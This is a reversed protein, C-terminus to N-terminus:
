EEGDELPIGFFEREYNEMDMTNRFYEMAEEENDERLGDIASSAIDILRSRTIYDMETRMRFYDVASLLAEAPNGMPVGDYEYAWYACTWAWDGTEKLGNVVAYEKMKEGRTILSYEGKQMILEYKM